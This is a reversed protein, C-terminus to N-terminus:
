RVTARAAPSAARARDFEAGWSPHGSEAPALEFAPELALLADFARRCASRRGAVCHNFALWKLAQVRVAVPEALLEPTEQLLRTSEPFRGQEFAAIAREIQRQGESAGGASPQLPVGDATPLSGCGGLVVGAALLMASVRDRPRM